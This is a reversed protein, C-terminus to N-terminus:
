INLDVVRNTRASEFIADVVLMTRRASEPTVMLEGKGNMVDVLNKYFGTWDEEIKPLTLDIFCDDPQPAMTRTPGYPTNVIVKGMEEMREKLLTIGGEEGMMDNISLSGLDGIAFFRPLKRLAFTGVEIHVSPGEAFVLEIKFMDEVDPNIISRTQAYVSSIKKTAYMATFQDILHVGWDYVMGGGFEPKMRWGYMKGNTGYARSDVSYVKGIMGGELTRRMVLYDRDWRRNHHVTFLKGTRKAADWIEDFENVNLSVPKEVLVNKGAELAEIAFPMHLYNPVSIIVLDIEPDSLFEKRNEYAKFGMAKGDALRQPDIDHVAVVHIGEITPANFAHWNGMGGFGLIGIKLMFIM